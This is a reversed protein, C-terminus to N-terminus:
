QDRLYRADDFTTVWLPRYVVALTLIMGTLTGEGFALYILYPAYEGFIIEAPRGAGVTLAAAGVLGAAGLSLAGGLFAVAFIYIFFNPPLVRESFRWVLWSVAVPTAAM